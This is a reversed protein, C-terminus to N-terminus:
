SGVGHILYPCSDPVPHYVASVSGGQATNHISLEIPKPVVINM